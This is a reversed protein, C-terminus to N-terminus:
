RRQSHFYRRQSQQVSFVRARAYEYIQFYRVNRYHPRIPCMISLQDHNTGVTLRQLIQAGSFVEAIITTRYAQYIRYALAFLQLHNAHVQSLTSNHQAHSHRTSPEQTTSHITYHIYHLGIRTRNSKTVRAAGGGGGYGGGGERGDM